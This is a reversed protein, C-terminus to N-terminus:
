AGRHSRGRRVPADPWTRRAREFEEAPVPGFEADMERLLARLREHQLKIRLADGVFASLGRRGAAQRARALLESDLSLSVKEVAM